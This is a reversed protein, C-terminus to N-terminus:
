VEDTRKPTYGANELEAVLPELAERRIVVLRPSIEAVLYDDLSTVARVETLAYEDGFEVVTLDHYIRVRGYAQWWEALQAGIAEPVPTALLRKWDALIESVSVGAEFSEYAAQVDLRYVFRGAEAVELRAIRDLLNHAHAGVATPDVTIRLADVTVAEAPSTEAGREVAHPPSVAVEVRDWYLDALGHLRFAHLRHGEFQLDALGLWHLPGAIITRVFAGQAADWDAADGAALPRGNRWLFWAGKEESYRRSYLYRYGELMAQEFAPFIARLAPVLNAVPVWHDDPLTALFPLLLNRLRVLNSHLDDPRFSSYAWDRKLQLEDSGRLVEWLASWNKMRFYTRALLARRGLDDRRLFHGEVESWVTTPSGPQLIGASVLLSYIFELQAESGVLPALREIADDPLSRRPPPVTLVLGSRRDWQAEQKAQALEEPVYDWEELGSHFKELYPRPMPPRLQVPTQQLMMVIQSAARALAFPDALRLDGTDPAPEAALDALLPPFHRALRWPIVAELGPLSDEGYAPLALGVEWIHRAYTNIQKHARLPGWARAVKELESRWNNPQGSLLFLARLVQSHEGDLHEIARRIDDTEVIYGAVQQVVEAKRTGRLSWGRNRGMKRLDNLKVEDLRAELEAVYTRQREEFSTTVWDPLQKPQRTSPPELPVIRIPSDSPRLAPERVAFDHPSELWRLLVAGIHKCYGGWDYPCTCHADIGGPGVDVTMQYHRSGQVEASLTQGARELNQLRRVYGRARRLSSKKLPGRLDDTTLTELTPM